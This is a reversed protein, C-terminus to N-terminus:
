DELGAARLAADRDIHFEIGTILGDAFTFVLASPQSIEVGGHRTTAVQNAFSVIHDASERIEEVEIRLEEFTEGYDRWAEDFGELGPHIAPPTPPLPQMVCVFGPSAFAVLFERLPALWEDLGGLDGAALMTELAEKLLPKADLDAM